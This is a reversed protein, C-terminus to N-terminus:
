SEQRKLLETTPERICCPLASRLLLIISVYLLVKFRVSTIVIIYLMFIIYIYSTPRPQTVTTGNKQGDSKDVPLREPYCRCCVQPPPLFRVGLGNAHPRCAVVSGDGGRLMYLNINSFIKPSLCPRCQHQNSEYWQSPINDVKWGLQRLSSQSTISSVNGQLDILDIRVQRDLSSKRPM